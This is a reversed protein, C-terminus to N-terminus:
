LIDQWLELEEDINVEHRNSVQGDPADPVKNAPDFNLVQLAEMRTARSLAVYAQGKEFIRNLDVRVRELTQGQSKHISLAWALILPVQERVAEIGGDANVVEFPLPVCLMLPGSAFQVAPWVTNLALIKKLKQERQEKQMDQLEQERAGLLEGVPPKQAGQAFEPLAIQAGKAVAERPKYFAVVKGISGNVLLGQIINKILMVQAGVKLPLIKPAVMDRLAREVREVPFPNGHEDRGPSDISHYNKPQGELKNLRATNASDVEMRTPYLETPEIGDDYQVPRSLQRFSVTAQADMRGYRMANLMDVFKQDKQRFVKKLVIPDGVCRPWSESDFAFCAPIQAGTASKDPVPPLQCFDGSLVVQIGGFPFNNKRLKRAIYELKDFLKGDIMSIEDIILTEVTRWRDLIKSKRSSDVDKSLFAIEDVTLQVGNKQKMFLEKRRKEDEKYAKKAIGYIKAVLAEKDEKGLGIGAWSHLTCGGINISAIGTSATIGLRLSPRGGKAKIIERLLVSKGTGASGTFFVSEGHQVKSLVYLQEPSLEFEHVPGAVLMDPPATLPPADEEAAAPPQAPAQPAQHLPPPMSARAISLPPGDLIEIDDYEEDKVSVSVPATQARSPSPPGDLMEIDSDWEYEDAYSQPTSQGGSPPGPLIEVDSMGDFYVDYDDEEKVEQKVPYQPVNRQQAVRVTSPGPDGYRQTAPPM